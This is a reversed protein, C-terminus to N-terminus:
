QQATEMSKLLEEGLLGLMADPNELDVKNGCYLEQLRQAASEQMEAAASRAQDMAATPLLLGAAATTSIHAAALLAPMELSTFAQLSSLLLIVLSGAASQPRAIEAAACIGQPISLGPKSLPVLGLELGVCWCCCVM